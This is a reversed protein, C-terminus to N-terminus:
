RVSAGFPTLTEITGNESLILATPSKLSHWLEVPDVGLVHGVYISIATGHSVVFQDRGPTIKCAREIAREFRDFVADATEDGFVLEHSSRLLQEIGHVFNAVPLFGASERRHEKVDEDIVIPIARSAAILVATEHAKREPSTVIAAPKWRSLAKALESAQLKGEDTLGWATSPIAPDVNPSSHRILVLAPM